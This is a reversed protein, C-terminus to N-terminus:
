ALSESLALSRFFEAKLRKLARCARGRAAEPTNVGLARTLAADDLEQRLEIVRRTAPDLRGIAARLADLLPESVGDTPRDAYSSLVGSWAGEDRFDGQRVAGARRARAWSRKQSAVVRVAITMVWPVVRRSPDFRGASRYVRVYVEQALDEVAAPDLRVGSRRYQGVILARILRDLDGERVERDILERASPERPRADQECDV